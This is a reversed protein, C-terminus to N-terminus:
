FKITLIQNEQIKYQKALQIETQENEFLIINHPLNYLSNLYEYKVMDDYDERYYKQCFLASIKHHCCTQEARNKRSETLLITEKGTKYLLNLIKYLEANLITHCIYQCYLNEKLQIIENLQENNLNPFYTNLDKRTIRKSNPEITKGTTQKIAEQYALNNAQDTKVLTNDLDFVFITKNNKEMKGQTKLANAETRTRTTACPCFFRPSLM